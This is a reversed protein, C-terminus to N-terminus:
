LLGLIKREVNIKHFNIQSNVFHNHSRMPFKEESFSCASPDPLVHSYIMRVTSDTGPENDDMEIEANLVSKTPASQM